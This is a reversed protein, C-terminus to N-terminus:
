DTARGGPLFRRWGHLRRRRSLTDAVIFREWPLQERLEAHFGPAHEPIGLARLARELVQDRADITGLANV